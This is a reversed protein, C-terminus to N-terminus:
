YRVDLNVTLTKNGEKLTRLNKQLEERHTFDFSYGFIVINHPSFQEGNYKDMLAAISSADFDHDPNVLYLHDGKWYAKYRGLTVEEADETLGYGDAVLWTRLVTELGFDDVSLTTINNSIPDFQEMLLLADQKPEELTYHKFGLDGSFLPNAEKIKKAARKIREMGIM